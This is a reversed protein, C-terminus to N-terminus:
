KLKRHWEGEIYIIYDDGHARPNKSYIRLGDHWDLIDDGKIFEERHDNIVKEKVEEWKM